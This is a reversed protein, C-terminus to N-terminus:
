TVTITLSPLTPTPLPWRAPLLNPKLVPTLTAVGPSVGTLEMVGNSYATAVIAGNSNVFDFIADLSLSEEHFDSFTVSLKVSKSQEVTLAVADGPADTDDWDWLVPFSHILDILNAADRDPVTISWVTDDDGSFTVLFKGSRVLNFSVRGNADTRVELEDASVMKSPLGWVKPEKELNNGQAMIRITKNSIPQGTLDVFVGTCRCLQDSGSVPLINSDAGTHDFKNPAGALAPDTVNITQLGHFNVGLKYFRVEYATGPTASGPLSFAALGNVDSTASAVLVHTGVNFVGVEVGALAVPSPSEDKVYIDVPVAM